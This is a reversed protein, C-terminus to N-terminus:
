KVSGMKCFYCLRLNITIPIYLAHCVSNTIFRTQGDISLSFHSQFSIVQSRTFLQFSVGSPVVPVFLLSEQFPLLSRQKKGAPYQCRETLPATRIVLAQSAFM